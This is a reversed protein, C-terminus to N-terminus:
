CLITRGRVGEGEVPSLPKSLPKMVKRFEYQAIVQNNCLVDFTIFDYRTAICVMEPKKAIARSFIDDYIRQGRGTLGGETQMVNIGDIVLLVDSKHREADYLSAYEKVSAKGKLEKNLITLIQEFAPKLEDVKSKDSYGLDVLNFEISYGLRMLACAITATQELAGSGIDTIVIEQDKKWEKRQLEFILRHAIYDRVNNLPNCIRDLLFHCKCESIMPLDCKEVISELIQFDTKDPDVFPTGAKSPLESFILPKKLFESLDGAAYSRKLM